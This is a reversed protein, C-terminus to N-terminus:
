ITKELASFHEIIRFDWEIYVWRYTDLYKPDINAKNPKLTSTTKDFDIIYIKGDEGLIINRHNVDNHYINNKHFMTFSDMLEDKILSVSKKDLFWLKNNKALKDFVRAMQTEFWVWKYADSFNYKEFFDLYEEYFDKKCHLRFASLLTHMAEKIEKDTKLLTYDINWILSQTKEKWLNDELEKHLIPLCSWTKFWFLTIGPIYELMLMMEGEHNNIVWYPKPISINSIDSEKILKYSNVFANYENLIKNNSTSDKEIRDKIILVKKKLGNKADAEVLFIHSSFGQAYYNHNRDLVEIQSLVSEINIDKISIEDKETDSNTEFTDLLQQQNKKIYRKKQNLTNSFTDVISTIYDNQNNKRHTESKLLWM